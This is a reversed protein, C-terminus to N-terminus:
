KELSEHQKPLKIWNLHRKGGQNGRKCKLIITSLNRAMASELYRLAAHLSSQFARWSNQHKRDLDTTEPSKEFLTIYCWVYLRASLCDSAMFDIEADEWGQSFQIVKSLCTKCHHHCCQLPKCIIRLLQPDVEQQVTIIQGKVLREVKLYYM